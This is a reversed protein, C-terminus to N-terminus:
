DSSVVNSYTSELGSETYATVTLYYIEDNSLGTLTATTTNGMDLPSTGENAGFVGVPFSAEGSNYYVKYGAIDADQVPSWTLTVTKANVDPNSPEDSPTSDEFFDSGGTATAGMQGGSGCATLLTALSAICLLTLVFRRLRLLANMALLSNNKVMKIVRTRIGFEYRDTKFYFFGGFYLVRAVRSASSAAGHSQTGHDGM